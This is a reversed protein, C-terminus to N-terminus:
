YWFVDDITKHNIDTMDYQSFSCDRNIKSDCSFYINIYEWNYIIGKKYKYKQLRELLKSSVLKANESIEDKTHKNKPVVDVEIYPARLHVIETVTFIESDEFLQLIQDRVIKGYEESGIKYETDVNKTKTNHNVLMFVLIMIVIVYWLQNKKM